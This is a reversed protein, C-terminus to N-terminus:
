KIGFLSTSPPAVMTLTNTGSNWTWQTVGNADIATYWVGDSVIYSPQVSTTFTFVTNTGDIAGTAPLSTFGGSSVPPNYIMLFSPSM